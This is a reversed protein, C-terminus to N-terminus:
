YIRHASGSYRWQFEEFVVVFSQVGVEVFGVGFVCLWCLCVCVRACVCVCVMFLFTMSGRCVSGM